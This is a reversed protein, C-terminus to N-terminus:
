KNNQTKYRMKPINPDWPKKKILYNNSLLVFRPIKCNKNKLSNMLRGRNKMSNDKKKM